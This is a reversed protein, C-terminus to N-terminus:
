RRAARLPPGHHASQGRHDLVATLDYLVRETADGDAEPRALWRSMDITRSVNIYSNSKKRDESMADYVFRLLSFHLVQAILEALRVDFCQRSRSWSPTARRM